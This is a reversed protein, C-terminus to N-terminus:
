RLSKRSDSDAFIMLNHKSDVFEILGKINLPAKLDIKIYM